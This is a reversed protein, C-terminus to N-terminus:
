AKFSQNRHKKRSGPELYVKEFRAIIKTPSGGRLRSYKHLDALVEAGAKTGINKVTASLCLIKKMLTACM